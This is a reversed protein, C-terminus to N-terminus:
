KAARIEKLAKLCAPVDDAPLNLIEEDSLEWWKLALLDSITQEDFRYKIVKAPVGGAIAYPPIDKTVVAGAAIVAGDGVTVGDMVVVNQGIWVDNGITVPRSHAFDYFKKQGKLAYDRLYTYPHTSLYKLPHQTPCILVNAAISCFAGIRSNYDGCSFNSGVYTHRGLIDNVGAFHRRVAQRKAKSPIFACMMKVFYRNM